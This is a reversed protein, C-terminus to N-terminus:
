VHARGIQQNAKRSQPFAQRWASAARLSADGARARLAVDVAREYLAEEGSKRAADLLLSYGAGPDGQLVQLEGLLIEFLLEGTLNSTPPPAEKTQALAPVLGLALTCCLLCRILTMTFSDYDRFM